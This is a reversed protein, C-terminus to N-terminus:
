TTDEQSQVSSVQRKIENTDSIWRHEPLKKSSKKVGDALKAGKQSELSRWYKKFLRQSELSSRRFDLITKKSFADWRYNIHGLERYAKIIGLLTTYKIGTARQIDILRM